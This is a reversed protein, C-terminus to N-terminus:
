VMKTVRISSSPVWVLAPLLATVTLLTAGLAVSPPAALMFSPSVKLRLM